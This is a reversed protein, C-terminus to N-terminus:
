LVDMCLLSGTCGLYILFFNNLESFILIFFINVLTTKTGGVNVELQLGHGSELMPSDLWKEVVKTWDM